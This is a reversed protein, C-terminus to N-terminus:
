RDDHEHSADLLDRTHVLKIRPRDHERGAHREVEDIAHWGAQSVLAPQKGRLWQELREPRDAATDRAGEGALDALLREVAEGKAGDRIAAAVMIRAQDLRGAAIAHAAEALPDAAPPTAAALAAGLLLLNM